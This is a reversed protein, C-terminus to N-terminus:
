DKIFHNFGCKKCIIRTGSFKNKQNFYFERESIKYKEHKCLGAVLLLNGIAPPANKISSKQMKNFKTSRIGGSRLSARSM